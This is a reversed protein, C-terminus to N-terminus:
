KERVKILLGFDGERYVRGYPTTITVDKLGSEVMQRARDIANSISIESYSEVSGYCHGSVTFSM